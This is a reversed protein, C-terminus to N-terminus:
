WKISKLVDVRDENDWVKTDYNFQDEQQKRVQWDRVRQGDTYGNQYADRCAQVLEARTLTIVENMLEEDM